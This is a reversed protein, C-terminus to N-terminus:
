HPLDIIPTSGQGIVPRKAVSPLFNQDVPPHASFSGRGGLDPPALGAAGGGTPGIAGVIALNLTTLKSLDLKGSEDEAPGGKKNKLLGLSQTTAVMERFGEVTSKLLDLKRGLRNARKAALDDEDTIEGSDPELSFSKLSSIIQMYQDTWAEVAKVTSEVLRKDVALSAAVRIEGVGIEQAQKLYAKRQPWGSSVAHKVLTDPRLGLQTAIDTIRITDPGDCFLTFAKEYLPAKSPRDSM